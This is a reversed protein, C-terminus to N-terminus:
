HGDNLCNKQDGKGDKNSEPISCPRMPKRKSAMQQRYLSPLYLEAPRIAPSELPLTVNAM